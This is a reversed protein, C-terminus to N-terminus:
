ECVFLLQANRKELAMGNM